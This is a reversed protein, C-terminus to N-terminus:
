VTSKGENKNNAVPCKQTLAGLISQNISFMRRWPQRSYSARTISSIQVIYHTTTRTTPPASFWSNIQNSKLRGVSTYTSIPRSAGTMRARIDMLTCESVCVCNCDQWPWLTVVNTRHHFMQETSSKTMQCHLLRTKWCNVSLSKWECCQWDHPRSPTGVNRWWVVYLSWWSYM